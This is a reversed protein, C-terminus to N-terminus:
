LRRHCSRNLGYSPLLIHNSDLCIGWTSQTASQAAEAQLAPMFPGGYAGDQSRALWHDCAPVSCVVPALVMSHYQKARLYCTQM